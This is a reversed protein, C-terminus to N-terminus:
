NSTRDFGSKLNIGTLNLLNQSKLLDVDLLKTNLFSQNFEKVMPDFFEVGFKEFTERNTLNKFDKFFNQVKLSNKFSLQKLLASMKDEVLSYTNQHYFLLNQHANIKKENRLVQYNINLFKHFSGSDLGIKHNAALTASPILSHQRTINYNASKFFLNDSSNLNSAEM